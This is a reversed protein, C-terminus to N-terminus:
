LEENTPPRAEDATNQLLGAKEERVSGAGNYVTEYVPNAFNGSKDADLTFPEADREQYMPNNFDNEQLREHSFPQRRRVIFFIAGLTCVVAVFTGVALLTPLM